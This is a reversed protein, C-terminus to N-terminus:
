REQEKILASELMERLDDAQDEGMERWAALAVIAVTIANRLRGVEAELAAIRKAHPLSDLLADWIKQRYGETKANAFEYGLAEISGEEHPWLFEARYESM